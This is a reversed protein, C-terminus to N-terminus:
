MCHGESEGPGLCVLLKRRGTWGGRKKASMGHRGEEADEEDVKQRHDNPKNSQILLAPIATPLPHQIVYAVDQHQTVIIFGGNNPENGAVLIQRRSGGVVKTEGVSSGPPGIILEYEEEGAEGDQMVVDGEALVPDGAEETDIAAIFIYDPGDNAGLRIGDM